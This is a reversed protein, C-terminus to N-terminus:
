IMRNAGISASFAMLLFMQSFLGHVFSLHFLFLLCYM